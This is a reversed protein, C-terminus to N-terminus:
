IHILSLIMEGWFFFKDLTEGKEQYNLYVEHLWLVAEFNEIKKFQSRALIFDELSSIQPLWIPEKIKKGLEKQLFLGARRNPFIVNLNRPDKYNLLLKEALDGIFSIM